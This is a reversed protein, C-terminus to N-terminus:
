NMLAIADDLYTVAAIRDEDISYTLPDQITDFADPDVASVTTQNQITTENQIMAPDEVQSQAWAPTSVAAAMVLSLAMALHLKRMSFRRASRSYTPVHLCRLWNLSASVVNVQGRCPKDM